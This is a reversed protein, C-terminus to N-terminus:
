PAPVELNRLSRPDLVDRILQLEQDTPLRSTTVADLHLATMPLLLRQPQPQEAPEHRRGSLASM